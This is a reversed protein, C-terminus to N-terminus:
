AARFTLMQALREKLQKLNLDVLGKDASHTVRSLTSSDLSARLEGLFRPEAVLVLRQFENEARAKNLKECLQRAFIQTMHFHAEDKNVLGHVPFNAGGEAMSSGSARDTDIERNKLRGEPFSITELLRLNKAGGDSALVHASSRNAVLIWTKYSPAIGDTQNNFM